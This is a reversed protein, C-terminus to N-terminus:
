KKNLVRKRTIDKNYFINIVQAKININNILENLTAEQHEKLYNDYSIIAREYCSPCLEVKNYIIDKNCIMCNGYKM